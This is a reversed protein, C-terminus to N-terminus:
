SCLPFTHSTLAVCKHYLAMAGARATCNEQMICDHSLVMAKARAPSEADGRSPNCNAM